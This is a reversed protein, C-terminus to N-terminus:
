KEDRSLLSTTVRAAGDGGFDVWSESQPHTHDYEEFRGWQRRGRHYVRDGPNFKEVQTEERM